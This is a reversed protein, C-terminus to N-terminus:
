RTEVVFRVACRDDANAARRFACPLVREDGAVCTSAGDRVWEGCPARAAGWPSPQGRVSAALNNGWPYLRGDPGRLAMELEDASPVRHVLGTDDSLRAALAALVDATGRWPTGDPARHPAAYIFYGSSAVVRLPNPFASRGAHGIWHAGAGVRALRLETGAIEWRMGDRTIGPPPPPPEDREVPSALAHCLLTLDDTIPLDGLLGRVALPWTTRDGSLTGRARAQLYEVATRRLLAYLGRERPDAGSATDDPFTAAVLDPVVATADLRAAIVVASIRVEPDDDHLAARLLQDIEPSSAAFDKAVWRLIQRRQEPPGAHAFLASRTPQDRKTAALTGLAGTALPPALTALAATAAAAVRPRSDQLHARVDDVLDVLAPAGLAAAGHLGRLVEREDAAALAARLQAADVTPVVSAVADRAVIAHEGAFALVRLRVVPDFTYHITADGAPHWWECWLPEGPVLPPDQSEAGLSWGADELHARLAAFALEPPVVLSPPTM